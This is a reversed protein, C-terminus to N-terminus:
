RGGPLFRKGRFLPFFGSEAHTLRPEKEEIPIGGGMDDTWGAAGLADAHSSRGCLVM